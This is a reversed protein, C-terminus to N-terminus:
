KLSIGCFKGSLILAPGLIVTAFSVYEMFPLLCFLFCPCLFSPSTWRNERVFKWKLQCLVNGTSAYIRKHQKKIRSQKKKAGRGNM